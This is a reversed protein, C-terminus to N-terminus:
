PSHLAVLASRLRYHEVASTVAKTAAITRDIIARKMRAAESAVEGDQPMEVDEVDGFEVVLDRGNPEGEEDGVCDENVPAGVVIVGDRRATAALLRRTLQSCGGNSYLVIMNHLIFAARVINCLFLRNRFEVRNGTRIMKFRQKVVGFLREVDKRCSEQRLVYQKEGESLPTSFTTAFIAWPPYIGDSWFRRAYDQPYDQAYDQAYDQGDEANDSRQENWM